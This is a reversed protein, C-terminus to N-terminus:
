WSVTESTVPLCGDPCSVASKSGPAAPAAPAPIPSAYACWRGRLLLGRRSSCTAEGGTDTFTFICLSPRCTVRLLSVSSSAAAFRSVRRRSLLLERRRVPLVPESDPLSPLPSRHRRTSSSSRWCASCTWRSCSAAAAAAAALSERAWDPLKGGDDKAGCCCM